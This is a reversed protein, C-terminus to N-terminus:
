IKKHSKLYEELKKFYKLLYDKKINDLETLESTYDELARKQFSIVKRGLLSNYLENYKYRIKNIENSINTLENILQNTSDKLNKTSFNKFRTNHNLHSYKTDYFSVLSWLDSIINNINNDKNKLKNKLKNYLNIIMQKFENLINKKSNNNIQLNINNITLDKNLINKPILYQFKKFYSLYDSIIDKKQKNLEKLDNPNKSSKIDRLINNYENYYKLLQNYISSFEFKTKNKNINKKIDQIKQEIDEIDEDKNSMIMTDYYSFLEKIDTYYNENFKNLFNNNIKSENYKSIKIIIEKFKNLFFYININKSKIEDM